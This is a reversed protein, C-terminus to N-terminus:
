DSFAYFTMHDVVLNKAGKKPIHCMTALTQIYQRHKSASFTPISLTQNSIETNKSTTAKFLLPGQSWALLCLSTSSVVMLSLIFLSRPARAQRIIFVLLMVSLPIYLGASYFNWSKM